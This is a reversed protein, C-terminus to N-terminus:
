RRSSCPLYSSIYVLSALSIIHCVCCSKIFVDSVIQNAFQSVTSIVSLIDVASRLQCIMEFGDENSGLGIQYARIIIRTCQFVSVSIGPDLPTQDGVKQVMQFLQVLARAYDVARIQCYLAYDPITAKLTEDPLSERIGPLMFRYLDCHCQHWMTHLMVYRQMHSSYARLYLNSENLALSESLSSRLDQLDRELQFLESRSDHASSGEAIVRRTYRPCHYAYKWAPTIHIM